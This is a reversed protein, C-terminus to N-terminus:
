RFPWRGRGGREVYKGRFSGRVQAHVGGGRTHYSDGVMGNRVGMLKFSRDVFRYERRVVNWGRVRPGDRLRPGFPMEARRGVEDSRPGLPVVMMDGEEVVPIVTMVETDEEDGSGNSGVTLRRKKGKPLRVLAVEPEDVELAVRSKAVALKAVPTVWVDEEGEVVIEGSMRELPEAVVQPEPEEVRDPSAMESSVEQEEKKRSDAEKQLLHNRKSLVSVHHRLKSVEKELDMIKQLAASAVLGVKAVKTASFTTPGRKVM